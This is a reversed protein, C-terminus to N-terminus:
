FLLEFLINGFDMQLLTIDDAGGVGLHSQNSVLQDLVYNIYNIIRILHINYNYLYVNM